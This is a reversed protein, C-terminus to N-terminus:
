SWTWESRSRTCTRDLAEFLPLLFGLVLRDTSDHASNNEGFQDSDLLLFRVKRGTAPDNVFYTEHLVVGAKKTSDWQWVGHMEWLDRGDTPGDDRWAKRGQRNLLEQGTCKTPVPFSRTWRGVTTPHGAGLLFSQLASASAVGRLYVHALSRRTAPHPIRM